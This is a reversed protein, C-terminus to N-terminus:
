SAHFSCHFCVSRKAHEHHLQPMMLIDLIHRKANKMFLPAHMQMSKPQLYIHLARGFMEGDSSDSASVFFFGLKRMKKFRDGLPTLLLRNGGSVTEGASISTPRDALHAGRREMIEVAAKYRAVVVITTFGQRVSFVPGYQTAWEEFKRFSSPFVSCLHL